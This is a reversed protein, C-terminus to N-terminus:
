SDAAGSRQFARTAKWGARMVALRDGLGRRLGAQTSGRKLDREALVAPLAALRGSTSLSAADCASLFAEGEQRLGAEDGPFLYRGSQRLRPWHRLMAGAGYAAGCAELRVLVGEDRVGLAEGIARQLGGAGDLMMKRWVNVDPQPDLEAERAALIRLLTERCLVGRELALLLPPALEHDPTRAGELVDRWWQLRILGAMPGAIAASRAPALARTLETHFTLLVEVDPRVSAPLFRACLARDPDARRVADELYGAGLADQQTRQGDKKMGGREVGKGMRVTVPEEFPTHLIKKGRAVNVAFVPRCPCCQTVPGVSLLMTVGWDRSADAAAGYSQIM